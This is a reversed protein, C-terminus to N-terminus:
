LNAGSYFAIGSDKETNASNLVAEALSFNFGSDFAHDLYAGVSVASNEWVEWVIYALPKGRNDSQPIGAVM